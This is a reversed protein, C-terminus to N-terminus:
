RRALDSSQNYSQCVQQILDLRKRQETKWRVLKLQNQGQESKIQRVAGKVGEVGEMGEKGEMGELRVTVWRNWSTSSYFLFFVMLFCLLAVFKPALDMAM